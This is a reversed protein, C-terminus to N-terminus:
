SLPPTLFDIRPDFFIMIDIAFYFNAFGNLGELDLIHRDWMHTCSYPYKKSSIIGLSDIGGFPTLLFFCPFTLEGIGVLPMLASSALVSDQTFLFFQVMLAEGSSDWRNRPFLLLASVMHQHVCTRVTLTM